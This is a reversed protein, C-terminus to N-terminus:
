ADSSVLIKGSPQFGTIAFEWCKVGLIYDPYFCGTTQHGEGVSILADKVLRKVAKLAGSRTQASTAISLREDRIQWGAGYFVPRALVVGDRLWTGDARQRYRRGGNNSMVDEELVRRRKHAHQEM